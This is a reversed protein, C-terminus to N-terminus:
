IAVNPISAHDARVDRGIGGAALSGIATGGISPPRNFWCWCTAGGRGCRRLILWLLRDCPRFRRNSRARVALQHRLALIEFLLDRRTSLAFRIAVLTRAVHQMARLVGGVIGSGIFKVPRSIPSPCLRLLFGFAETVLSRADVADDELVVQLAFILLEQLLPIAITVVAIAPGVAIRQLDLVPRSLVVQRAVVLSV